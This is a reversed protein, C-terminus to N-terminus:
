SRLFLFIFYLSVTCLFLLILEIRALCLIYNYYYYSYYNNHLRHSGIVLGVGCELEVICNRRGGPQTVESSEHWKIQKGGRM